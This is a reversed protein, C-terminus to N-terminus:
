AVSVRVLNRVIRSGLLWASGVFTVGGLAIAPLPAFPLPWQALAALVLCMAMSAGAVRLIEGWLISVHLLPRSLLLVLMTVALLAFTVAEAYRLLTDDGPAFIFSTALLASALLALTMLPLGIAIKLRGQTLAITTQTSLVCFCAAQIISHAAIQSVHGSMNPHLFLSAISPGLFVGALAYPLSVALVAALFDSAHSAGTENGASRYLDPIASLSLATALLAIPAYFIDASLSFYGAQAENLWLLVFNRCLAGGMLYLNLAFASILGFKLQAGIETRSIDRLEIHSWLSWFSRRCVITLVTGAIQGWVAGWAGLGWYAVSVSLGSTLVGRSFTIVSYDRSLGRANNIVLVLEYFLTVVALIFTLAVYQFKDIDIALLIAAASLPFLSLLAAYGLSNSIRIERDKGSLSSVDKWSSNSIWSSVLIHMLLANTIVLVFIGFDRSSLIYSLAIVTLVGFFRGIVLAVVYYANMMSRMAPGSAPATM